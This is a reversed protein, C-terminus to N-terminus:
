KHVIAKYQEDTLDDIYYYLPNVPNNNKRVEYHLHPGTSVGTNGVLGVLKGRKVKDGVKVSCKQLHAYVTKYGFGHNVIVRNGYGSDWGTAVVIGDGTAYVPTGYMAAYDVGTHEKWQRFVPHYRRGFYDSIRFYDSKLLPSIGPKCAFFRKKELSLQSVEEFSKEQIKIQNELIDAKKFVRALLKGQNFVDFKKYRDVGGFGAQRITSPLPTLEAYNRYLYDDKEEISSLIEAKKDLRSEMKLLGSVLRNNQFKLFVGTPTHHLFIAGIYFLVGLVVGIATFLGIKRFLQKKTTKHEKFTLTDPDLIYRKGM